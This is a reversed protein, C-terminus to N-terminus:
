KPVYIIKGMDKRANVAEGRLYRRDIDRVGNPKGLSGIRVKFRFESLM